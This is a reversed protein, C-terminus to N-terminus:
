GHRTHCAPQNSYKSLCAASLYTGPLYFFYSHAGLLHVFQRYIHAFRYTVTNIHLLSSHDKSWRRSFVDICEALAAGIEHTNTKLFPIQLLRTAWALISVCRLSSERWEDAGQNSAYMCKKDTFPQLVVFWNLRLPSQRQEHGQGNLKDGWKPTKNM